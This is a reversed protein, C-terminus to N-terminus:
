APVDLARNIDDWEKRAEADGKQWRDLWLKDRKLANLRDQAAAPTLTKPLGSDGSVFKSEGIKEGIVALWRNTKAYGAASIVDALDDETMGIANAARKVLVTKEDYANGWEKRLADQDNRLALEVGADYQKLQNSNYENLWGALKEAQKTSLGLQHLIPAAAKAFEGTDGEPVPLRYGEPSDPRGIKQYIANWGDTDAEDKPWVVGRGAKDAGLLKELNQYSSIVDQPATWGKNEVYGKAEEPYWPNGGTPSGNADTM